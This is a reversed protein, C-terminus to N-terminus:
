DDRAEGHLNWRSIAGTEDREALVVVIGCNECEAVYTWGAVVNKAIVVAYYEARTDDRWTSSDKQYHADSYKCWPCMRVLPNGPTHETPKLPENM